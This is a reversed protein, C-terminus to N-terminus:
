LGLRKLRVLADALARLYVDCVEDPALGSALVGDVDAREYALVAALAQGAAGPGGSADTGAAAAHLAPGASIVDLLQPLPLGLGEAVGSLLGITYATAGSGAVLRRCSLGRAVATWVAEAPVGPTGGLLAARTAWVSLVGRGMLVLAQHLSTIGDTGSFVASNAGHMLQVSLGPDASVLEELQDIDADAALAQILRLALFQAPAVSEPGRVPPRGAARGQFLEFGGILCWDFLAPTDVGTAVLGVTSGRLGAALDTVDDPDCVGVDVTVYDAIGFLAPEVPLAAPQSVAIRYGADQLRELDTLDDAGVLAGDVELVVQDPPFLREGGGYRDHAAFDRGSFDVFTRRGDTLAHLGVDSVVPDLARHSDGSHGAAFRYARPEHAADVVTQRWVQVGGTVEGDIEGDASSVPGPPSTFSM